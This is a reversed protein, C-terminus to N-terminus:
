FNIQEVHHMKNGHIADQRYSRYIKCLSVCEMTEFQYVVNADFASRYSSRTFDLFRSLTPDYDGVINM